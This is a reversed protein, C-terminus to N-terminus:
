DVDPYGIISALDAAACACLRDTLWYALEGGSNGGWGYLTGGASLVFGDFVGAAISAPTTGAPLSVPVPSDRSPDAQLNQCNEPGSGVAGIGLQGFVNDGWAYLKGDSGIAYASAYLDGQGNATVAKAFVGSPLLVKTPTDIGTVPDAASGVGLAGFQNYGWAYLNGDSGIAYASDGASAVATPTVGFPLLVKVPVDSNGGSGGSGLQGHTNDGWAYLNGDSGIAYADAGSGSGAAIATPTVGVPLSVAVPRKSGHHRPGDGLAENSGWAYLSGNSGIAYGDSYNGAVATPTVGSPFLVRVPLDSSNLVSGNGLQGTGNYGWAFLSATSQDTGAAVAPYLSLSQLGGTVLLTGVAVITLLKVLQTIPRIVMAAGLAQDLELARVARIYPAGCVVPTSVPGSVSKGIVLPGPSLDRVVPYARGGVSQSSLPDVCSM